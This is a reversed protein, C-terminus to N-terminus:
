FWWGRCLREPCFTARAVLAFACVLRGQYGRGLDILRLYPGAESDEVRFGLGQVRFGM